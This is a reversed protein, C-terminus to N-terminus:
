ASPRRSITVLIIGARAFILARAERLGVVSRHVALVLPLGAWTTALICPWLRLVARLWLLPLRRRLPSALFVLVRGIRVLPHAPNALGSGSRITGM